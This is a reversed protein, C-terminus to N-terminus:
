QGPPKCFQTEQFSIDSCSTRQLSKGAVRDSLFKLADQHAQVFPLLHDGPYWRWQQQVGNACYTKALSLAQCFEVAEDAVGHYLFVPVLPKREPAGLSNAIFKSRWTTDTLPNFGGITFRTIDSQAINGLVNEVVCTSRVKDYLKLGDANLKSKLNLGYAADFGIGAGVLVGFAINQLSNPRNIAEGVKIIDAPIGGMAAGVFNSNYEPAYSRQLESAWAAGNGGESYGWFLLKGNSAISSLDPLEWKSDFLADIKYLARVSDLVSKGLSLGVVYAHEGPTGLGQYDTAAVAWGKDLASRVYFIDYNLSNQFGKSSACQDGMGQTGGAFGVVPRAKPFIGEFYPLKPVLLSGTVAIRAGQADNSIYMVRIADVGFSLASLLVSADFRMWRIITGPNGAPLPSPPTYFQAETGTFASQAHAQRAGIGTIALAIVLGVVRSTIRYSLM